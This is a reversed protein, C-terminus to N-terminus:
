QRSDSLTCSVWPANVDVEETHHILHIFLHIPILSALVTGINLPVYFMQATFLVLMQTWIQFM